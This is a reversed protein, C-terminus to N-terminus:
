FAFQMTLPLKFVSKVPKGDETAPKWLQMSNVTNLTRLTEKNFIENSGEVKYDSTKGNEDIKFFVTSKVKGIKEPMVSTNFNSSIAKRFANIGGPFEAQTKITDIKPANNVISLNEDKVSQNIEALPQNIAVLIAASKENELPPIEKKIEISKALIKNEANIEKKFSINETKTKAPIREAFLFFLGISLPISMWSKLKATTSINKTMMQIRKKTNFLNFQNTFILKESILEGLLLNQYSKIEPSKKLVNEDALFEHNNLIANKFLYFAPNFWFVVLLIEIFLVDLSHKQEIHTKEHLIIKEDIRGNEFDKKNLFITNWFSHPTVKKDQLIFNIGGSKVKKNLLIEIILKRLAICFKLLLVSAVLIYIALIVNSFTFISATETIKQSIDLPQGIILGSKEKSIVAASSYHLFPIIISFFLSALLYFRNFKLTKERELFLYYTGILLASSLLFKFLYTEM